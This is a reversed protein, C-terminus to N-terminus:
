QPPSEPARVPIYRLIEPYLEEPLLIGGKQRIYDDTHNAYVAINNLTQIQSRQTTQYLRRKLDDFQTPMIAQGYELDKWLNFCDEFAHAGIETVSDPIVINTLSSCGKFAASRITTVSDPIIVSTLSTCGRFAEDGIHVVGEPIIVSTLSSCGRFTLSHIFLIGEPIVINTLSSCGRFAASRITTVSNPIIINTLSTCGRFAEDGITTVSDPIIVNKLNSRNKFQSDEIITVGHAVVVLTTYKERVEYALMTSLLGGITLNTIYKLYEILYEILSNGVGLKKLLQSIHNKNGDIKSDDNFQIRTPNKYISWFLYPKAETFAYNTLTKGYYDKLLLIEDHGFKDSIYNIFDINNEVVAMKIPTNKDEDSHYTTLADITILNEVCIFNNNKISYILKSYPDDYQFPIYCTQDVNHAPSVIYNPSFMGRYNPSSLSMRQNNTFSSASKGGLISALGVGLGLLSAKKGDSRQRRSRQKSRRQKSRRQKSRRQKIHTAM